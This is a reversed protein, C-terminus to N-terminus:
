CSRPIFSLLPLLPILPYFSSFPPLLLPIFSLLPLFPLLTSPLPPPSLLLLLLPFTPCLLLHVIIFGIVSVSTKPNLQPLCTREMDAYYFRFLLLFTVDNHCRTQSYIVLVPVMVMYAVDPGASRDPQDPLFRVVLKRDNTTITTLM